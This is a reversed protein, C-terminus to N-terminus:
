RVSSTNLVAGYAATAVSQQEAAILAKRRAHAADLLAIPDILPKVPRPRPHPPPPKPARIRLRTTAILLLPQGPDSKTRRQKKIPRPPSDARPTDAEGSLRELRRICTQCAYGGKFPRKVAKAPIVHQRAQCNWRRDSRRGLLAISHSVMLTGSIWEACVLFCQVAYPAAPHPPIRAPAHSGGSTSSATSQEVTGCHLAAAAAVPRASTDQM